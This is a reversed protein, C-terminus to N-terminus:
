APPVRSNRWPEAVSSSRRGAPETSTTTANSIMSCTASWSATSRPKSCTSAGPPSTITEVGSRAAYAWALSCAFGNWTWSSVIPSSSADSRARKGFRASKACRVVVPDRISASPPSACRRWAPKLRSRAPSSHCTPPGGDGSYTRATADAASSGSSAPSEVSDSKPSSSRRAASRRPASPMWATCRWASWMSDSRACASSTSSSAFARTPSSAALTSPSAPSSARAATATSVLRRSSADSRSRRPESRVSSARTRADTVHRM